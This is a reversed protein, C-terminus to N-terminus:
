DNSLGLLLREVEAVMERGVEIFREPVPADKKEPEQFQNFSATFVGSDVEEDLGAEYQHLLLFPRGMAVTCKPADLQGDVAIFPIRLYQDGNSDDIKYDFFGRDYDWNGGISYGIPKLAKELDFLDFREGEIKSPIEYM